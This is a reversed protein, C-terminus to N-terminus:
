ELNFDITQPEQAAVTRKEESQTNFKPPLIDVREPVQAGMGGELMKGTERSASLRVLKPGATAKLTYRGDKIQGPWKGQAPAEDEFVIQGDAIPQGQYSVVGIVEYQRPESSCGALLALLVFHAPGVFSHKRIAM